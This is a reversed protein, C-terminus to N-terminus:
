QWSIKVRGATGSSGPIQQNIGGVNTVKAGKGGNGISNHGQAGNGGLGAEQGAAGPINTVNTAPPFGSTPTPTLSAGGNGGNGNTPAKGGGVSYSRFYPSSDLSWLVYSQGSLTTAEGDNAPNPEGIMGRQGVHINIKCVGDWNTSNSHWIGNPSICNQVQTASVPVTFKAYGGAGGGSGLVESNIGATTLAQGGGGAGWMEFTIGSINSPLDRLDFSHNGTYSFDEFNSNSNGTGSVGVIKVYGDGGGGGYGGEMSGRSFYTTGNITWTQNPSSVIFNGFGGGGGGGGNAFKGSTGNYGYKHDFVGQAGWSSGTVSDTCSDNEPTEGSAGNDNCPTYLSQNNWIAEGNGGQGGMGAPNSGYGM